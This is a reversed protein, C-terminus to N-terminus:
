RQGLRPSSPSLPALRLPASTAAQSTALTLNHFPRIDFSDVSPHVPSASNRRHSNPYQFQSQYQNQARPALSTSATAAAAAAAATASYTAAASARAAATAVVRKAAIRQRLLQSMEHRTFSRNLDKSSDHYPTSIPSMPPTAAVPAATYKNYLPSRYSANGSQWTPSCPTTGRRGAEIEIANPTMNETSVADDDSEDDIEALMNAIDPDQPTLGQSLKKRQEQLQAATLLNRSNMLDAVQQEAAAQRMKELQQELTKIDEERAQLDHMVRAHHTRWKEETAQVAGEFAHRIKLLAAARDRLWQFVREVEDQTPMIGSQFVLPCKSPPNASSGGINFQLQEFSRVLTQLLSVENLFRTRYESNESQLTQSKKDNRDYEERKRLSSEREAALKRAFDEKLQGAEADKALLENRHSTQKRQLRDHLDDREDQCLKLQTRVREIAAKERSVEHRLNELQSDAELARQISQTYQKAETQVRALTSETQMRLADAARHQQQANQLDTRLGHLREALSANEDKLGSMQTEAMSLSRQHDHVQSQMSKESERVSELERKLAAIQQAETDRAEQLERKLAAIHKAETDRAGELERKLAAIQTADSDRMETNARKLNNIQMQLAHERGQLQELEVVKQQLQKNESEYSSISDTAAQLRAKIDDYEALQQRVKVLETQQLANTKTEDELRRQLRASKAQLISLQNAAHQVVTTSEGSQHFSLLSSTDSHTSSSRPMMAPHHYHHLERDPSSHNPSGSSANNMNMSMSNRRDAAQKLLHKELSRLQRTMLEHEAAGAALDSQLTIILAEKEQLQSETEKASTTQKIESDQQAQVISQKYQHATRIARSSLKRLAKIQKMLLAMRECLVGIASTVPMSSSEDTSNIKDTDIISGSFSISHRDDEESSSSDSSAEDSTSGGGAEMVSGRRAFAGHRSKKLKANGTKVKKQTLETAKRTRICLARLQMDLQKLLEEHSSIKEQMQKSEAKSSDISAKHKAELEAYMQEKAALSEQTTQLQVKTDHVAAQTSHLQSQLSQAHARVARLQHKIKSVSTPSTPHKDDIEKESIDLRALTTHTARNHNAFAVHGPAPVAHIHSASDPDAALISMVESVITAAVFNETTSSHALQAPMMHPENAFCQRFRAITSSVLRDNSVETERVAEEYEQKASKLREHLETNTAQQTENTTKLQEHQARLREMDKELQAIRTVDQQQQLEGEELMQTCRRAEQKWKAIEAVAGHEDNGLTQTLEEVTSSLNDREERVALFKESLQRLTTEYDKLKTASSTAKDRAKRLQTELKKNEDLLHRIRESNASSSFLPPTSHHILLSPHSALPSPRPALFISL